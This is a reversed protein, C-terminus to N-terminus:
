TERVRIMVITVTTPVIKIAAVQNTHAVQFWKKSLAFVGAHCNIRNKIVNAKMVTVNMEILKEFKQNLSKYRTEAMQSPTNFTLKKAAQRMQSMEAAM